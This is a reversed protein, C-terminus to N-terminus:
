PAQVCVVRLVGNYDPLIAAKGGFLARVAEAQGAGVELLLEGGPAIHERWGDALSRYADLGDLGGYLALSPEFRVEQQLANMDGQTLYPPNCVILDFRGSVPAFWSGTLVTLGVGNKEANERTLAVCDPSLDSATVTLGGLKALSVGICGTGCCIDLATRYGRAKAERLAHECLTETDQRPILVGPRVLFTLGMFGWEGLLYQLPEHRQRRQALGFLSREQEDTLTDGRKLPLEGPEFGLVHCLLLRAQQAAEEGAAGLLMRTLESLAQAATRTM